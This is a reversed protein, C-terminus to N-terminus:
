KVGGNIQAEAARFAAASALLQGVLAPNKRAYDPSMANDIAAVAASMIEQMLDATNLNNSDKTNSM